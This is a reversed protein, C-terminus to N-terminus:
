RTEGKQRLAPAAGRDHARIAAAPGHRSDNMLRLADADGAVSMIGLVPGFGEESMVAMGHDVDTLVQPALYPSGDKAAPFRGADILAKAGAGVAATTQARVHDAASARVM